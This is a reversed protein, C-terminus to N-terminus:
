NPLIFFNAQAPLNKAEETTVPGIFVPVKLAVFHKTLDELSNKFIKPDLWVGSMNITMMRELGIQKLGRWRIVYAQGCGLPMNGDHYRLDKLFGDSSSLILSRSLLDKDKLFDYLKKAFTPGQAHVAFVVKESTNTFSSLPQLAGNWEMFLEGDKTTLPIWRVKTDSMSLASPSQVMSQIWPNPDFSPPNMSAVVRLLLWVLFPAILAITFLQVSRKTNENMRLWGYGM